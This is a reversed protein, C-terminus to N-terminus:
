FVLRVEKLLHIREMDSLVGLDFSLLVVVDSVSVRDKISQILHLTEEFGTQSILYEIGEFLVVGGSKEEMFNTLAIYIMRMNQADVCMPEEMKNTTLWISTMESPAKIKEAIVLPNERSILFAPRKKELFRRFINRAGESDSFTNFLYIEGPAFSELPPSGHRKFEAMATKATESLLSRLANRERRLSELEDNAKQFAEALIREKRKRETIDVGVGVIS